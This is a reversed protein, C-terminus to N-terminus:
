ERSRARMVAEGRDESAAPAPGSRTVAGRVRRPSGRHVVVHLVHHTSLTRGLVLSLAANESTLDHHDQLLSLVRRLWATPLGSHWRPFSRAIDLLQVCDSWM